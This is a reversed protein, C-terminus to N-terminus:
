CMSLKLSHTKGEKLRLESEDPPGQQLPTLDSETTPGEGKRCAVDM